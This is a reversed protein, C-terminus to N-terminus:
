TKLKWFQSTIDKIEFMRQNTTNCELGGLNNIYSGLKLYDLSYLYRCDTTNKGIYLCTKYHNEKCLKLIDLMRGPEQGDGLFVYCDITEKDKEFYYLLVDDTLEDGINDRLEPSHCMNCNGGCNSISFCRTVLGPVERFTIRTSVYKM